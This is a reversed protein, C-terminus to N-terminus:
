ATAEKRGKYNATNMTLARELRALREQSKGIRQTGAALQNMGTM